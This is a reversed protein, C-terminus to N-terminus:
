PLLVLSATAPYWISEPKSPVPTAVAPRRSASRLSTSSRFPGSSSIESSGTPSKLGSFSRSQASASMGSSSGSWLWCIEEIWLCTTDDQCTGVLDLTWLGRTERTWRLFLDEHCTFFVVFTWLGDIERPCLLSIDVNWVFYLDDHCTFLFDATWKGLSERTWLFYWDAQCM